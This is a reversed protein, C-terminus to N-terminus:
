ASEAAVRGDPGAGRRPRPESLYLHWLLRAASARHPRWAEGIAELAEQTPREELRLARRAAEQLAIDGVPWTDPRRLASLLYVEATWPGIGPLAVLARRV